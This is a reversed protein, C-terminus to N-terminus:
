FLERTQGGGRNAGEKHERSKGQDTRAREMQERTPPTPRETQRQHKISEGPERASVRETNRANASRLNQNAETLRRVEGSLESVRVEAKEARIKQEQTSREWRGWQDQATTLRSKVEQLEKQLDAFSEASVIPPQEKPPVPKKEPVREKAFFDLKTIDPLIDALKDPLQSAFPAVAILLVLMLAVVTLIRRM